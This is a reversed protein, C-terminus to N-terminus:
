DYLRFVEFEVTKGRGTWSDLTMYPQVRYIGAVSLDGAVTTHRLATTGYISATWDARTGDPKRVVLKYGTATSIDEDCDVEIITGIDGVYVKDM